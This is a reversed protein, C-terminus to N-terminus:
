QSFGVDKMACNGGAYGGHCECEGRGRDCEGRGSCELVYEYSEGPRFVYVWPLLSVDIRGDWYVNPGVDLVMSANKRDRWLRKVRYLNLYRPNHRHTFADPLPSFLTVMAGKEVCFSIGFTGSPSSECDLSGSYADGYDSTSNMTQITNSSLPPASFAVADSSAAALTGTTTFVAFETNSSYDFAPRSLIKFLAAEPDYLLAALFGHPTSPEPCVSTLGGSGNGPLCITSYPSPTLDVLRVLHPFLRSGYDWSFSDGTVQGTESSVAPDGDADGLCKKLRRTEMATLGALSDFLLGSVLTVTVERCYFPFFDFNESRFGDSFVFASVGSPLGNVNSAQLTSRRGDLFTDIYPQRLLGPRSPLVLTYKTGFFPSPLLPATEPTLVPYHSTFESFRRCRISAAPTVSNPLAALSRSVDECTAGYTIPDSVWDEGFEDYLVIAYTGSINADVLTATYIVYSFNTVAPYRYENDAYLPDIGHPCLRLSCDPGSYGPDCSCGM